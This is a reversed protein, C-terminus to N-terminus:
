AAQTMERPPFVLCGHGRRQGREQGQVSGNVALIAGSDTVEATYTLVDGPIASSLDVGLTLGLTPIVGTANVSKELEIKGREDDALAARIDGPM